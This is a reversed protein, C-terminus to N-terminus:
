STQDRSQRIINEVFSLAKALAQYKEVRYTPNRLVFDPLEMSGHLSNEYVESEVHPVEFGAGKARAINSQLAHVYELQEQVLIDIGAVIFLMNKPLTPLDSVDHRLYPNVRKSTPEVASASAGYAHFLPFLFKLPDRKPFKAPTPKEWPPTSLDVPTCFGVWGEVVPMTLSKRESESLALDM